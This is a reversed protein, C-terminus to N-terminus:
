AVIFSKGHPLFKRPVVRVEIGNRLALEAFDDLLDDDRTNQQGRHVKAEGTWQNFEGFHLDDLSV